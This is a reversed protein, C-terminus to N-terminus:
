NQYCCSCLVDSSSLIFFLLCACVFDFLAASIVFKSVKTGQLAEALLMLGPLSKVVIVESQMIDHLRLVELQKIEGMSPGQILTATQGDDSWKYSDLNDWCNTSEPMLSKTMLCQVIGSSPLSNMDGCLLFPHDNDHCDGKRLEDIKRCIAFAQLARVHDAKPHWFLHTNAVVIQDPLPCVLPQGPVGFMNTKLSLKAIQCVTGVREMVVERLDQHTSLLDHVGNMSEWWEDDLDVVARDQVLLDRVAFTEEMTCEFRDDRWFMACGEMQQSIKKGYFGRYGRSEFLPRLFKYFVSSEVEQLCVIDADYALIEAALMPMRREKSLLDPPCYSYWSSKGKTVYGSALLNYSVVRVHDNSTVMSCRPRTWESRLTHVIPMYPLAFVPHKYTFMKEGCPYNSSSYSEIGYRDASYYEGNEQRRRFASMSVSVTKGIDEKTPTYYRMDVGHAKPEGNVFWTLLVGDAFFVEYDIVLPVGVFVEQGFKSLTRTKYITPPCYDVTLTATSSSASASAPLDHENDSLQLTIQTARSWLDASNMHELELQSQIIRINSQQQQQQQLNNSDSNCSIAIQPISISSAYAAYLNIAQDDGDSIWNEDGDRNGQKTKKRRRAKKRERKTLKLVHKKATLELRRMAVLSSENPDRNMQFEITSSGNEGDDMQVHITLANVHQPNSNNADHNDQKGKNFEPVATAPLLRM